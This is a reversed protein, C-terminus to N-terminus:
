DPEKLKDSSPPPQHLKERTPVLCSLRSLTSKVRESHRQATPSHASNACNLRRPIDRISTFRVYCIAAAYTATPCSASRWVKGPFPLDAAMQLYQKLAAQL